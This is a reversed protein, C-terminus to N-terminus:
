PPPAERVSTFYHETEIEIIEHHQPNKTCHIVCVFSIANLVMAVITIILAITIRRNASRMRASSERISELIQVQRDANSM